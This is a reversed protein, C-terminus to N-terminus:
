SLLDQRALQMLEWRWPMPDGRDMLSDLDSYFAAALTVDGREYASRAKELLEDATPNKESV